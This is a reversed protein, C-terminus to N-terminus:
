RTLLVCGAIPGGGTSVVAVDADDVQRGVAEGRLQVCAEHLLGFGHLRGGSLQGGGTNVPLEGDIAIRGDEVFPGGDGHPCFGLSELWFLVLFSFGDYLQAVDVDAPTLDTRAWMTAAAGLSAMTTLDPWQHWSPAFGIGTGIADFRVVPSAMDGARDAASVILATSGDVPVDCDLLHIPTSIPRSSLYDDLSMPDTM